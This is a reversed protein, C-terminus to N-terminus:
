RRPACRRSRRHLCVAGAVVPTLYSTLPRTHQLQSSSDELLVIPAPPKQRECVKAFQDIRAIEEDWLQGDARELAKALVKGWKLAASIEAPKFARAQAMSDIGLILQVNKPVKVPGTGVPAAPVPPEGGDGGEPAAAGPVGVGDDHLGSPYTVPVALYAGLKPVGFFKVGPDRIVNEIHLYEPFAPPKPPADEQGEEVPEPPLEKWVRFTVGDEKIEEPDAGPPLGKLVKGM